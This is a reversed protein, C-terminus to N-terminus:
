PFYMPLSTSFRKMPIEGRGPEGGAGYLLIMTMRVTMATDPAVQYKYRPNESTGMFSTKAYGNLHSIM